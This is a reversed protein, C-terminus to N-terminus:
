GTHEVTFSATTVTHLGGRVRYDLRLTMRRPQVAAVLDRLLRDTAHEQVIGVDRYSLLYYKLSKLELCARAPTYTIILTGYDPLGTWPCVATFEDTEIVIEQATGDEPYAFTLLCGADISDLNKMPLPSDLRRYRQGITDADALYEHSSPM